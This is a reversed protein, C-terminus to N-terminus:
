CRCSRPTRTRARSRWTPTSRRSRRARRRPDAAEDVADATVAENLAEHATRARDGLAKWEDRHSDAIAKVQDSQADTLELERALMPLMGM